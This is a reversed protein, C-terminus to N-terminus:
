PSAHRDSVGDAEDRAQARGAPRDDEGVTDEVEEMGTVHSIELM